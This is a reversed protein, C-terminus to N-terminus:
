QLYYFHQKGDGVSSSIVIPYIEYYDHHVDVNRMVLNNEVVLIMVAAVVVDFFGVQLIVIAEGQLVM